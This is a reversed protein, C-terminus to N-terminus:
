NSGADIPANSAPDNTGAAATGIPEVWLQHDDPHYRYEVGQPLKPLPIRNFAIIKEMFEEHTRPYEGKEAQYLQLAQPLQIEFVIKEKTNFYAIAPGAIIKGVGQENDLSRGQQGVGVGAVRAAPAQTEVAPTTTSATDTPNTAPKCGLCTLAACGLVIVFRM